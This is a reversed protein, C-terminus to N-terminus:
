QVSFSVEFKGFVLKKALPELFHQHFNNLNFINLSIEMSQNKSSSIELILLFSYKRGREGIL